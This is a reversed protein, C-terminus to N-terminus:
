KPMRAAVKDALLDYDIANSPQSKTPASSLQEEMYDYVEDDEVVNDLFRFLKAADKLASGMYFPGKQKLHSRRSSHVISDIYDLKKQKMANRIVNTETDEDDSM